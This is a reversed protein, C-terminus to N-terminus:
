EGGVAEKVADAAEGAKEKVADAAEGAKEKVADAAEGAKEKVADGMGEVAAGMGTGSGSEMDHSAEGMSHGEHSDTSSAPPAETAGEGCGVVFCLGLLLASLSKLASM